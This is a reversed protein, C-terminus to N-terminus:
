DMIFIITLQLELYIVILTHIDTCFHWFYIQPVKNHYNKHGVQYIHHDCRKYNYFININHTETVFFAVLRWYAM